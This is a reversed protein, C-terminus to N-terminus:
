LMPEFSQTFGDTRDLRRRHRVLKAHEQSLYEKQQDQKHKTHINLM